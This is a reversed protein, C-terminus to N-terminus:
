SNSLRLKALALEKPTNINILTNSDPAAVWDADNEEFWRILKHKGREIHETISSLCAKPLCCHLPHKFHDCQLAIPRIPEDNLRQLVARQGLADILQENIFPTDCPVVFLIDSDSASLLAHLGALPGPYEPYADQCIRKSLRQYTKESRNCNILVQHNAALPQLLRVASSILTENDLTMLAKDDGGMRSSRGGALIGADYSLNVADLAAILPRLTM